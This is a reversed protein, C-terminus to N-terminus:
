SWWRIQSLNTLLSSLSLNELREDWDLELILSPVRQIHERSWPGPAMERGRTSWWSLPGLLAEWKLFRTCWEALLSPWNPVAPNAWWSKMQLAALAKCKVARRYFLLTVSGSDGRQSVGSGHTRYDPISSVSPFSGTNRFWEFPECLHFYDWWFNAYGFIFKM